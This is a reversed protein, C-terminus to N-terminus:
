TEEAPLPFTLQTSPHGHFRMQKMFFGSAGCRRAAQTLGWARSQELAGQWPLVVRRAAKRNSAAQTEHKKWTEDTNRLETKLNTPSSCGWVPTSFLEERPQAGASSHNRPSWQASLHCWLTAGTPSLTQSWRQPFKGPRVTSKPAKQISTLQALLGHQVKQVRLWIRDLALCLHHTRSSPKHEGHKNRPCKVREAATSARTHLVSPVRVRPFGQSTTGTDQPIFSPIHFWGHQKQSTLLKAAEAEHTGFTSNRTIMGFRPRCWYQNTSMLVDKVNFPNHLCYTPSTGTSQYNLACIYASKTFPQHLKLQKLIFEVLHTFWSFDRSAEHSEPQSQTSTAWPANVHQATSTSLKWSARRSLM